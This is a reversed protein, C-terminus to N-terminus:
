VVPVLVVSPPAGGCVLYGILSGGIRTLESFSRTRCSFKRSSASCYVDTARNSSRFEPPRSGDRAAHPRGGLHFGSRASSLIIM